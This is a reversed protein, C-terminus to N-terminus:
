QGSVGCLNARIYDFNQKLSDFPDGPCTDQEVIFWECGSEEAAAIIKKWELVGSGIEAMVPKNASSDFRYDKLHLLPLRGRLRRCWDVPDGGGAQVWYTDIEAQLHAPDTKEYILELALRGDARSFEIAHNHYTLVLGAAALVAGVADLKSILGALQKADTLDYGSPYPYSTYRCGLRQLRDVVWRPESLIKSSNEHTACCVLGEGDLMRRLEAEDIPGMASVQVAEYGITRVKKLSAAIDAPKQIFDRVTYLQAAVRNIKM